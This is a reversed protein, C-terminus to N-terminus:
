LSSRQTRGEGMERERARRAIKAEVEERGLCRWTREAGEVAVLDFVEEGVGEGDSHDFLFGAHADYHLPRSVFRIHNIGSHVSLKIPPILHVVSGGHPNDVTRMWNGSEWRSGPAGIERAYRPIEVVLWPVEEIPPYGDWLRRVAADDPYKGLDQVMLGTQVLSGRVLYSGGQVARRALGVMAGAAIGIGTGVDCLMLPPGTPQPPGKFPQFKTHEHALGSFLQGITEMGQFHSMPGLPGFTSSEVYVIGKGRNKVMGLVDRFGLGMKDLTGPLLNCLIVDAEMVLKIVQARGAPSKVDLTTSRMGFNIGLEHHPFDFWGPASVRLVDAGLQALQLGAIPGAVIRTFALVKVGYLTGRRPSPAFSPWGSAPWLESPADEDLRGSRFAAWEDLTRPGRVAAHRECMYRPLQELVMGHPDRSFEERTRMVIAIIGSNLSRRELDFAANEKLRATVTDSFEKHYAEWTKPHTDASALSLRVLRRIEDPPCGIATLLKQPPDWSMVFFFIHRSDRTLFVDSLLARANAYIPSGPLTDAPPDALPPDAADGPTTPPTTAAADVAEGKATQEAAKKNFLASNELWMGGGEVEWEIALQGWAVWGAHIVDLEVKCERGRLGELWACVVALALQGGAHIESCKWPSPMFPATSGTLTASDVLERTQEPTPGGTFRGFGLEGLIRLAADRTGKHTDM